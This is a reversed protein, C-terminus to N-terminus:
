VVTTGGRNRAKHLMYDPPSSTVEDAPDAEDEKVLEGLMAEAKLFETRARADGMQEWVEARIFSFLIDQMEAPFYEMTTVTSIDSSTYATLRKKGEGEIVTAAAPTHVFRVKINGSADRGKRLYGIVTGTESDINRRKIWQRYRKETFKKLYGTQGEIGLIILGGVEADFTYDKTGAALTFSLEVLSWDWNWKRWVRFRARNLKSTIDIAAQDANNGGTGVRCDRKIQDVFEQLTM